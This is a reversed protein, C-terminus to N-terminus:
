AEILFEEVTGNEQIELMYGEYREVRESWLTTENSTITINVPQNSPVSSSLNLRGHDSNDFSRNLLLEGNEAGRVVVSFKEPYNDEIILKSEFPAATTETPQEGIGTCGATVVVCAVLLMIWSNQSM